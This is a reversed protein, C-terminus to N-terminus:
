YLPNTLKMGCICIYLKLAMPSTTSHVSSMVLNGELMGLNGITVWVDNSAKSIM